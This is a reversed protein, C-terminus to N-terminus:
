RVGGHRMSEPLPGAIAEELRALLIQYDARSRAIATRVDLLVREADLLDLAGLSGAAYASEASRLSEEAQLTLVDELLRLHTWTLPLRGSLDDVDGRIRAAVIRTKEESSRVTELGEQVGASVKDRWVPISVGVLFGLDDVGNDEPPMARGAADQRNEVLGYTLGVTFSPRSDKRALGVLAEARETEASAAALEPRRSEALRVLEAADVTVESPAGMVVEPMEATEPLDRLVNLRTAVSVRRKRIDLLKTEDKTIEAQLKVVAQQIGIGAAYRSRALEQYHILTERDAETIRREADLFGIEHYLARAESMRALKVAETGSEGAAAAKAAAEERLPLTGGWPMKQSVSLMARLPGVRTEPPLAYATLSATPDPLARAQAPREGLASAHARAAAIEPNRELVEALLDRLVPDEIKALIEAAPAPPAAAPDAPQGASAFATATAASALALLWVAGTARIARARKQNTSRSHTHV